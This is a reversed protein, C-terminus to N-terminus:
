KKNTIKELNSLYKKDYADIIEKLKEKNWYKKTKLGTLRKQKKIEYENIFAESHLIRKLKKIIEPTIKNFYRKDNRLLVAEVALYEHNFNEDDNARSKKFYHICLLGKMENILNEFDRKAFLPFHINRYTQFDCLRGLIKIDKSWNNYLAELEVEKKLYDLWIVIAGGLMLKKPNNKIPKFFGKLINLCYKKNSKGEFKITPVLIDVCYKKSSNEEFKIAPFPPLSKLHNATTPVSTRSLFQPVKHIANGNATTLCDTIIIIIAKLM